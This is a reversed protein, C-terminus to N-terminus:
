NKVLIACVFQIFGASELFFFTQQQQKGEKKRPGHTESNAYVKGFDVLVKVIKREDNKFVVTRTIDPRVEKVTNVLFIIYLCRLIQAQVTAMKGMGTCSEMQTFIVAARPQSPRSDPWVLSPFSKLINCNRPSGSSIQPFGSFLVPIESSMELM